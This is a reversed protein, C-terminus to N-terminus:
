DPSTIMTDRGRHHKLRLQRRRIEDALTGPGNPNKPLEVDSGPPWYFSSALAPSLAHTLLFNRDAVNFYNQGDFSRGLRRLDELNAIDIGKKPLIKRNKHPEFEFNFDFSKSEIGPVGLAKGFARLAAYGYTDPWRQYWNEFWSWLLINRVDQYYEANNFEQAALWQDEALRQHATADAEILSVRMFYDAFTVGGTPITDYYDQWAHRIEHVLAQIPWSGNKSSLTSEVIAVVGSGVPYYGGAQATHDVIFEIHHRHAWDLADKAVPIKAAENFLTALKQNDEQRRELPLAARWEALNGRDWRVPRHNNQPVPRQLTTNKAM